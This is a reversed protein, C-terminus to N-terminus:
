RMDKPRIREVSEVDDVWKWFFLDQLAKKRTIPDKEDSDFDEKLPEQRDDGSRTGVLCSVVEAGSM